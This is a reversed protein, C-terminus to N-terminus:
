FDKLNEFNIVNIAWYVTTALGGKVRVVIDNGDVVAGADWLVAALDKKSANIAGPEISPAASGIRVIIFSLTWVAKVTLDDKFAVYNVMMNGCSNEPIDARTSPSWSDDTTIQDPPYFKRTIDGM